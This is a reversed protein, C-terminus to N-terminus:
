EGFGKHLNRNIKLKNEIQYTELIFEEYSFNIGYKKVLKNTLYSVFLFDEPYDVSLSINKNKKFNKLSSRKTIINFM